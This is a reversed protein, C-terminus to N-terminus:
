QPSRWPLYLRGLLLNIHGQLLSFKATVARLSIRCYIYSEALWAPVLVRLKFGLRTSTVVLIKDVGLLYYKICKNKGSHQSQM